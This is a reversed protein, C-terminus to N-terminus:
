LEYKLSVIKGAKRRQSKQYARAEDAEAMVARALYETTYGKAINEFENGALIASGTSAQLYVGLTDQADEFNETLREMAENFGQENIEDIYSRSADIRMPFLCTAILALFNQYVVDWNAVEDFDEINGMGETWDPYNDEYETYDFDEIESKDEQYLENNDDEYQSSDYNGSYKHEAKDVYRIRDKEYKKGYATASRPAGLEKKIKLPTFEKLEEVRKKTIRNPKEPMKYTSTGWGAKDLRKVYNEIRKYEKNWEKQLPTQKKRPKRKAM